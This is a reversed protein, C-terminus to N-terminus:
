AGPLTHWSRRSWTQLARAGAPPPVQAGAVVLLRDESRPSLAHRIAAVERAQVAAIKRCRSCDGRGVANIVVAPVAIDLRALRRVLRTTELRPLAAPRTIVVFATSRADSLLERLRRVGKSLNLLVAGLEGLRAVGQYKLLISMLARTWDQVLGPMELLRLAHGTPATDMVVLDWSPTESTLAETIELIAALEDLGPPALEILSRMVSRDHAADFSSSGRMADFARDIAAIYREQLHRLVRSPDLERARLNPPGGAVPHAEDAVTEGFVDSLSHAPDTSILLVRRRPGKRALALAVAAACTTKGVGGKGGLLVLRLSDDLLDAPPVADGDIAARWAKVRTRPGTEVAHERALEEGISTLAPLGRPEVDRAAVRSLHEVPPLAALAKAEFGVRAECHECPEPPAPTVRNAVIAHVPIEASRLAEIAAKAEAVAMPEPLTVWSMRSRAEDRLMSWLDRATDALSSILRDEVGEQWHGRLAEEVVRHKERMRDFVGAIGFLTQPMALMRLTHGTPATDVVILDFRGDESFRSIELLAALEDM